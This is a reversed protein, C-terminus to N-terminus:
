EKIVAVIKRQSFYKDYVWNGCMAGLFGLIGYAPIM